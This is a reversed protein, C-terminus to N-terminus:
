GKFFLIGTKYKGNEVTQQYIGGNEEVFRQINKLGYGESKRVKRSIVEEQNFPNEVEIWFREQSTQMTLHVIKESGSYREVASFANDLLNGVIVGLLDTDLSLQDSLFIKTKLVVGRARAENAKENLWFNLIPHPTYHHETQSLLEMEEKLYDEAEKYKDNKLFSLLVLHKNKLDHRLGALQEQKEKIQEFNKLQMELSKNVLDIERKEEYYLEQGRYIMLVFINILITVMLIVAMKRYSMQYGNYTLDKMFYNLLFTSAIAIGIISLRVMKNKEDERIFNPKLGKKILILVALFLLSTLGNRLYTHFFIGTTTTLSIPERFVFYSIVFDVLAGTTVLTLMIISSWFLRQLISIKMQKGLYFILIILMLISFIFVVRFMVLKTWYPFYDYIIGQSAYFLYNVGTLLFILAITKKRPRQNFFYLMFFLEFLLPFIGILYKAYIEIFIIKM